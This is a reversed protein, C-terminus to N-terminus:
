VHRMSSYSAHAFWNCAAAPLQCSPKHSLRSVLGTDLASLRWVACEVLQTKASARDTPKLSSATHVEFLLVSLLFWGHTVTLQKSSENRTERALGDLHCSTATAGVLLGVCWVVSHFISSFFLFFREREREREGLEGKMRGCATRGLHVRLRHNLGFDLLDAGCQV